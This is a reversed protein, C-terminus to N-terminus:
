TKPSVLPKSITPAPKGRYTPKATLSTQNSVILEPAPSHPMSLAPVNSIMPEAEFPQPLKVLSDSHPNPASVPVVFPSKVSIDDKHSGMM